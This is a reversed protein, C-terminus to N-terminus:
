LSHKCLDLHMATSKEAESETQTTCVFAVAAVNKLNRGKVCYLNFRAQKDVGVADDAALVTPVVPDVVGDVYEPSSSAKTVAVTTLTLKVLRYAKSTLLDVTLM